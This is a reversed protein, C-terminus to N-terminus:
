VERLMLTLIRDASQDVPAGSVGSYIRLHKIGMTMSLDIPIYRGAAAKIVYETGNADYIRMWTNGGDPSGALSIDAADWAAPIVIAAIRLGGCDADVSNTNAQITVKYTDQVSGVNDKLGM